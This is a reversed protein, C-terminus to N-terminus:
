SDDGSFHEALYRTLRVMAWVFRLMLLIRILSGAPRRERESKGNDM